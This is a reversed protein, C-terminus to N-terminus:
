MPNQWQVNPYNINGLQSLDFTVMGNSGVVLANFNQNYFCFQFPLDLKTPFADDYNANLPTGSEFCHSSCLRHFSKM